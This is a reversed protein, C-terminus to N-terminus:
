PPLIEIGHARAVEVLRDLDLPAKPREERLGLEALFVDHVDAATGLEAYFRAHALGPALTALVRTPGPGTSQLAHVAGAPILLSQGSELGILEDELRVALRGELVYLQEPEAPHRHPVMGEGVPVILEFMSYHGQTERGTALFTITTGLVRLATGVPPLAETPNM